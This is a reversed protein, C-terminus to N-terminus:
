PTVHSAPSGNTAMTWGGPMLGIKHTYLRYTSQRPRAVLVALNSGQSGLTEIGSTHCLILLENTSRLQEPYEAHLEDVANTTALSMEASAAGGIIIPVDRSMREFLSDPNEGLPSLDKPQVILLRVPESPGAQTSRQHWILLSSEDLPMVYNYFNLIAVPGNAGCPADQGM